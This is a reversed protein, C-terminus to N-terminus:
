ISRIVLWIHSTNPNTPQNRDSTAKAPFTSMKNIMGNSIPIAVVSEPHTLLYLGIIMDPVILVVKDKEMRNM